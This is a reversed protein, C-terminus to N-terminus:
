PGATKVRVRYFGNTWCCGETTARGALVRIVYDGPVTFSANTAVKGSADPTGRPNAIVIPGPGRFASWVVSLSGRSRSQEEAPPATMESIVASLNLPRGTEAELAVSAGHPGQAIEPGANLKLKPPVAGSTSDKLANIEWDPKLYGPITLPQGATVLRWTVTKEGFNAPVIVAFVGVQRQPLFHTPQGQDAPGPEIRNDPGVPIDIEQEANRNLYGFVLSFTGDGNRYWGDFSPTVTQGSRHILRNQGFAAISLGCALLSVLTAVFVRRFSHIAMRCKSIQNVM